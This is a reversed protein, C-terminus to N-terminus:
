STTEQLLKEFRASREKLEVLRSPVHVNYWWANTWKQLDPDNYARMLMWAYRDNKYNVDQWTRFNTFHQHKFDSCEAFALCSENGQCLEEHIYGRWQVGADRRYIRRHRMEQFEATRAVEDFDSTTVVWDKPVYTLTRISVCVRRCRKLWGRLVPAQQPDLREDADLSHIWESTAM